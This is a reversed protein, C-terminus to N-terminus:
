AIIYVKLAIDTKMAGMIIIIIDQHYLCCVGKYVFIIVM